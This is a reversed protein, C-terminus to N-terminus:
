NYYRALTILMALASQALAISVILVGVAPGWRRGAGRAAIALLGGYLALLPLIYRAQEFQGPHARRWDYGIWGLLGLLGAVIAVYAILESFRRRVADLRTILERGALVAITTAIALALDYVWGPFGYDLWGFRGIFGEFWIARAEYTPFWQGMVDLRPLYFEWLYSLHGGLSSPRPAIASTTRQGEGQPSGFLVGRDWALWNLAMYVLFPVLVVAAAAGAGRWAERRRDPAARM